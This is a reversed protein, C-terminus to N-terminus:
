TQSIINLYMLFVSTQRKIICEVRYFGLPTLQCVSILDELLFYEIFIYLILIQKLKLLYQIMRQFYNSNKRSVDLLTKTLRQLNREKKELEEMMKQTTSKEKSLKGQM